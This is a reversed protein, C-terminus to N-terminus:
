IVVSTLVAAMNATETISQNLPLTNICATMEAGMNAADPQTQVLAVPVIIDTAVLAGNADDAVSRNLPTVINVFVFTLAAAMNAADPQTQVIPTPQVVGTLQLNGSATDFRTPRSTKRGLWIMPTPISQIQSYM